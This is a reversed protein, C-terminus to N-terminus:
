FFPFSILLLLLPKILALLTRARFVHPGQGLLGISLTFHITCKSKTGKKKLEMELMMMTECRTLSIM